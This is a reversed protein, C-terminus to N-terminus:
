VEFSSRESLISEFAHHIAEKCTEFDITPISDNICIMQYKQERIISCIKECNDDRICCFYGDQLCPSFAGSALQWYRFVYQNVDYYTRFRDQRTRDLLKYEEEWVKEFTSKLFPTPLHSNKFGVYREWPSLFVNRLLQMGYRFNFWKLPHQKMQQRKHFHRNIVDVDNLIHHYFANGDGISTITAQLGELCPQGNKFFDTPKVPKLLFMDDNFYIFRESLGSIRHLNIEIAASNFNPLCDEPMIEKHNVVHIKPHDTNLFPPLHGYTVFHVTRVWPAYKEIGRFWYKMFDWDRYRNASDAQVNDETETSFRAKETLWEPDSGDVWLVVIDIDKM